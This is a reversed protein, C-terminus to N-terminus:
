GLCYVGGAVASSLAVPVRVAQGDEPPWYLKQEVQADPPLEVDPVHAPGPYAPYAPQLPWDAVPVGAVNAALHLASGFQAPKM